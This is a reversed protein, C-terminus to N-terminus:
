GCSGSTDAKNLNHSTVLIGKAVFIELASTISLANSLFSIGQLFIELLYNKISSIIVFFIFSKEPSLISTLKWDKFSHLFYLAYLILVAIRQQKVIRKNTKPMKNKTADISFLM